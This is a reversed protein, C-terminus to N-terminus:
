VIKQMSVLLDRIGCELRPGRQLDAQAYENILGDFEDQSLGYEHAKGKFWGLLPDSDDVTYEMGEPAEFNVDYDAPSAPADKMADQNIEDIIQERTITKASISDVSLNLM